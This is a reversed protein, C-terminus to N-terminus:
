PARHPDGTPTALEPSAPRHVRRRWFLGAALLVAAVPLFPILTGIVILVAHGLKHVAEWGSALGSIFGSRAVPPAPPAPKAIGTVSGQLVVTITSLSTQGALAAQQRQLSELDAERAALESEIAIVDGLKEAKSLLTRVRIVSAQMTKMRSDLDVLQATVDQTSEQQSLVTGVGTIARMVDSYSGAPVRLTISMTTSSGEAGGVYGAGTQVFSRVKAAAHDVAEVENRRDADAGKGSARVTIDLTLSATRIVQRDQAQVGASISVGAVGKQSSGSSAKGGAPAAAASTGAAAASTGAAAASTGAAAASTGAAAASMAAASTASGASPASGAGDGAPDGVVQTSRMSSASVATDSGSNTCGITFALLLGGIAAGAAIKLPRRGRVPRAGARLIAANPAEPTRRM